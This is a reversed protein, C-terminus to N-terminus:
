KRAIFSKILKFIESTEVGFNTVSVKFQNNKSIGKKQDMEISENKYAYGMILLNEDKVSLLEDATEDITESESQEKVKQKM